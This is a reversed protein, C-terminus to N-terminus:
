LRNALRYYPWFIARKFIRSFKLGYKNTYRVVDAYLKIRQGPMSAMGDVVAFGHRCFRLVLQSSAIVGKPRYRAASGGCVYQTFTVSPDTFVSGELLFPLILLPDFSWVYDYAKRADIYRQLLVKRRFVGYFWTVEASDLLLKRREKHDVPLMGPVDHDPPLTGEEVEYTLNGVALNCSPHGALGDALRKFFGPSSLDDCARWAFLETDATELLYRFNKEAGMNAEHRVYQIRPDTKAFERCIEATEDTSANDSVVIRYDLDEECLNRLCRELFRGANYVPVGVTLLAPSASHNTM